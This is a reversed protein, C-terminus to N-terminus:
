YNKKFKVAAAGTFGEIPPNMKEVRIELEKLSPYQKHIKEAISQTLTELLERPQDMEDKITKYIVSYDATDNITLVKMENDPFKVFLDVLFEGGKKKENEYLGHFSYFQLGTLEITFDGM